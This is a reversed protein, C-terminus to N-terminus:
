EKFETEETQYHQLSISRIGDCMQEKSQGHLTKYLESIENRSLVMDSEFANRGHFLRTSRIESNYKLNSLCNALTADLSTRPKPDNFEMMRFPKWAITHVNGRCTVVTTDVDPLVVASQNTARELLACCIKQLAEPELNSSFCCDWLFHHDTTCEPKGTCPPTEFAWINGNDLFDDITSKGLNLPM